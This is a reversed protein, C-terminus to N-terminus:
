GFAYKWASVTGEKEACDIAKKRCLQKEESSSEATIYVDAWAEATNTKQM